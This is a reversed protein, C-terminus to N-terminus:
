EHIYTRRSKSERNQNGDDVEGRRRGIPGGAFVPRATMVPRLYGERTAMWARMSSCPLYESCNPRWAFDAVVLERVLFDL